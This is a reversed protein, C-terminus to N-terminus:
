LIDEANMAMMNQSLVTVYIDGLRHEETIHETVHCGNKGTVGHAMFLASNNLLVNEANSSHVVVNEAETKLHRIGVNAFDKELEMGVAEIVFDGNMGLHGIEM